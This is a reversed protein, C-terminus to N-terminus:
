DDIEEYPILGFMMDIAKRLAEETNWSGMEAMSDYGDSTAEHAADSSKSDIHSILTNAFNRILEEKRTEKKDKSM